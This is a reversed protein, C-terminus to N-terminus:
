LTNFALGTSAVCFVYLAVPVLFDQHNLWAARQLSWALSLLMVMLLFYALWGERPRALRRLWDPVEWEPM